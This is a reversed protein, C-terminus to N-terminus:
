DEVIVVRTKVPRKNTKNARLPANVVSHQPPTATSGQSSWRYSSEQYAGRNNQQYAGRDPTVQYGGQNTQHYGSRNPSHQIAGQNNQQYTGSNSAVQYGGQNAQQYGSRNPVQPNAGQNKQQYTGSDPTVQYGGQNAQQYDGRKPTHQSGGQNFTQSGMTSQFGGRNTQYDGRNAQYGALDPRRNRQNQACAVCFLLLLFVGLCGLTLMKFVQSFHCTKKRAALVQRLIQIDIDNVVNELRSFM